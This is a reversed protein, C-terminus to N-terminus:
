DLVANIPMSTCLSEISMAMASAFSARCKPRTPPSACATSLATRLSREACRGLPKVQGELVLGRLTATSNPNSFLIRVDRFEDSDEFKGTGLAVADRKGSSRYTMERHIYQVNFLVGAGEPLYHLMVLAVKTGTELRSVAEAELPPLDRFRESDASPM